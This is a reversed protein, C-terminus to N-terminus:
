FWYERKLLNNLMQLNFLLEAILLGIDTFKEQNPDQPLISEIKKFIKTWKQRITKDFLFSNCRILHGDPSWRNASITNPFDFFM